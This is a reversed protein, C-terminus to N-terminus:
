KSLVLFNGLPTVPRSGSNIDRSDEEVVADNLNPSFVSDYSADEKFKPQPLQLGNPIPSNEDGIKDFGRFDEM